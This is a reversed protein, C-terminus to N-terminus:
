GNRLCSLSPPFSRSRSISLPPPLFRALFLSLVRALSLGTASRRTNLASAMADAGGVALAIPTYGVIELVVDSVEFM